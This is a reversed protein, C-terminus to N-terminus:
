DDEWADPDRGRAAAAAREEAAAKDMRARLVADLALPRPPAATPAAAVPGAASAAAAAAGARAGAPSPDWPELAPPPVLLGEHTLATVRAGKGCLVCEMLFRHEFSAGSVETFCYYHECVVHKCGRCVHSFTVVERSERSRADDGEDEEVESVVRREAADLPGIKKCQACGKFNALYCGSETCLSGRDPLAAAVCARCMWGRERATRRREPVRTPSDAHRLARCATAGQAREPLARLGRGGKLEVDGSAEEDLALILVAAGDEEPQQLQSHSAASDSRAKKVLESRFTREAGRRSGGRWGV